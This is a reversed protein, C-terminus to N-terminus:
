QRRLLARRPLGRQVQEADRQRSVGSRVRLHLESLLLFSTILCPALLTHTRSHTTQMAARLRSDSARTMGSTAAAAAAHPGGRVESPILALSEWQRKKEHEIIEFIEPDIQSLPTSLLPSLTPAAAGSTTAASRGAQAGRTAANGATARVTARHAITASMRMVSRM